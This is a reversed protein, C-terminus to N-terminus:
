DLGNAARGLAARHAAQGNDLLGCLVDGLARVAPRLPGEFLRRREIPAPDRARVLVSHLHRAVAAAPAERKRRLQVRRSRMRRKGRSHRRRVGASGGVRIGGGDLGVTGALSYVPGPRTPDLPDLQATDPPGVTWIPQHGSQQSAQLARAQRRHDLPPAARGQFRGLLVMRWMRGRGGGRSDPPTM